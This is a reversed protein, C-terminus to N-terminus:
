LPESALAFLHWSQSCMFEFQWMCGSCFCRLTAALHGMGVPQPGGCSFFVTNEVTEPDMDFVWLLTSFFISSYVGVTYMAIAHIKNGM